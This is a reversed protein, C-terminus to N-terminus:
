WRCPMNYPLTNGAKGMEKEGECNVLESLQVATAFSDVFVSICYDSVKGESLFGGSDYDTDM